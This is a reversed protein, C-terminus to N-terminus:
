KIYTIILYLTIVVWLVDLARGIDSQTISGGRVLAIIHFYINHAGYMFGYVVSYIVMLLQISGM